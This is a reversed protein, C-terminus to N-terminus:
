IKKVPFKTTTHATRSGEEFERAQMTKDGWPLQLVDTLLKMDKHNGLASYRITSTKNSKIRALLQRSLANSLIFTSAPLAIM